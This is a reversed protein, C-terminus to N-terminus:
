IKSTSVGKCRPILLLSVGKRGSDSTRVLTVFYDARHGTTIWYKNGNVIYYKGDSTKTARTKIQAVDSGGSLESIALAVLKEGAIIEKLAQKHIQNSAYRQLPGLSMSIIEINLTFANVSM